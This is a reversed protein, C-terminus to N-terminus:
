GITSYTIELSLEEFENMLDLEFFNTLRNDFLHNRSLSFLM